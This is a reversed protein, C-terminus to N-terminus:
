LGMRAFLARADDCDRAIQERLPTLGEFKMEDRLRKVFALRLTRGYLDYTGGASFGIYLSVQKGRFFEAPTQAHATASALGLTSLAIAAKAIPTFM